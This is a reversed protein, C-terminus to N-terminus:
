QRNENKIRLIYRTKSLVNAGIEGNIRKTDEPYHSVNLWWPSSLLKYMYSRSCLRVKWLEIGCSYKWCLEEVTLPFPRRKKGYVFNTWWRSLKIKWNM